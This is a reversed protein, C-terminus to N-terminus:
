RERMRAVGDIVYEGHGLAVTPTIFRATTGSNGVFLEGHASPITGGRGHVTIEEAAEDADVAFGLARLCSMMRQTDDAFLANTLTTPGDALAALALARNTISKSGPVSATGIVPGPAPDLTLASTM